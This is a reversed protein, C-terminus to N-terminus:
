CHGPQEAESQKGLDSLLWIYYNYLDCRGYSSLLPPSPASNIKPKRVLALRTIDFSKPSCVRTLGVGSCALAPPLLGSKAAAEMQSQAKRKQMHGVQLIDEGLQVFHVGENEDEGDDIEGDSDEQLEEHDTLEELLSFKLLFIVIQAAM